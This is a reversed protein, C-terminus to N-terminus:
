LSISHIINIDAITPMKYHVIIALGHCEQDLSTPWVNTKLLGPTTMTRHKLINCMTTYHVSFAEGSLNRSLDHMRCCVDSGNYKIILYNTM